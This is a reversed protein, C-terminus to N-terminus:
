IRFIYNLVLKDIFSAEEVYKNWKYISKERDLVRLNNYVHVYYYNEHFNGHKDMINASIFQVKNLPIKTLIDYIKQSIVSYPTPHYDVIKPNKPVPDGIHFNMEPSNEIYETEGGYYPCGYDGVLLPYNNNNERGIIYYELNNEM